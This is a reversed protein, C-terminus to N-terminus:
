KNEVSLTVVLVDCHPHHVGRINDESFIILIYRVVLGQSQNTLNVELGDPEHRAERALNKRSKRSEGAAPGGWIHNIDFMNEDSDEKKKGKRKKLSKPQM